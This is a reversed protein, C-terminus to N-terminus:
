YPKKIAKYAASSSWDGGKIYQEIGYARRSWGLAINKNNYASLRKVYNIWYTKLMNALFDLDNNLHAKRLMEEYLPTWSHFSGSTYSCQQLMDYFRQNLKIGYQQIIADVSFKVSGRENYYMKVQFEAQKKTVRDTSKVRRKYKGDTSFIYTSGIGITLYKEGPILYPASKYGEYDAIFDYMEDSIVGNAWGNSFTDTENTYGMIELAKNLGFVAILWGIM